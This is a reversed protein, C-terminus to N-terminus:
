SLSSIMSVISLNNFLANSKMVQEEDIYKSVSSVGNDLLADIVAYHINCCDEYIDESLKEVYKEAEKRATSEKIGPKSNWTHSERKLRNGKSDYGRDIRILFSWSGNKKQGRNKITAM